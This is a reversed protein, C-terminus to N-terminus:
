RSAPPDADPTPVQSETFLQITTHGLPDFDGLEETAFEWVREPSVQRYGPVARNRSRGSMMRRRLMVEQGYNHGGLAPDPRVPVLMATIHASFSTATLGCRRAYHHLLGGVVERAIDTHDPLLM